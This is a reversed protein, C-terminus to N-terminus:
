VEEWEITLKEVLPKFGSARAMDLAQKYYKEGENMEKRKKYILGITGMSEIEVSRYRIRQALELAQRSVDLAGDLDGNIFLLRGTRELCRAQPHVLGTEGAIELANNYYQDAKRIDMKRLHLDGWCVLIDPEVLRYGSERAIDGSKKLYAAAKRPKFRPHRTHLSGLECTINCQSIRDQYKKAFDLAADLSRLAGAFDGHLSCLRGLYTDISTDTRKFGKKHSIEAANNLYKAAVSTEGSIAHGEGLLALIRCISKELSYKKAFLLVRRLIMFCKEIEGKRFLIRATEVNANAEVSRDGVQQSISIAKSFFSLADTLKGQLVCMEGQWFFLIPSDGEIAKLWLEGRDGRYFQRATELEGWTIYVKVMAALMYAMQKFDNIDTALELAILYEKLAKDVKGLTFLAIGIGGHIISLQQNDGLEAALKLGDKLYDLTIGPKSAELAALGAEILKKLLINPFIRENQSYIELDKKKKEYERELKNNDKWELDKRVVQEIDMFFDCFGSISYFDHAKDIITNLLVHSGIIIVKLRYEPIYDRYFILGAAVDGPDLGPNDYFPFVHYAQPCLHNPNKLAGLAKERNEVTVTEVKVPSHREIYEVMANGLEPSDVGAMVLSPNDGVHLIVDKLLSLKSIERKPILAEVREPEPNQKHNQKDKPM